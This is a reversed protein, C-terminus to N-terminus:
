KPEPSKVGPEPGFSIAFDPPVDIQRNSYGPDASANVSSPIIEEPLLSDPPTSAQQGQNVLWQIRSSAKHVPLQQTFSGSFTAPPSCTSERRLRLFPPWKQNEM